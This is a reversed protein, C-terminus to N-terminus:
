LVAPPVFLYGTPYFHWKFMFYWTEAATEEFDLSHHHFWNRVNRLMVDTMTNWQSSFLAAECCDLVLISFTVSTQTREYFLSSHTWVLELQLVTHLYYFDWQLYDTRFFWFSSSKSEYMQFVWVWMCIEFALKNM